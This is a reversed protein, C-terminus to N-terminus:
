RGQDDVIHALSEGTQRHLEMVDSPNANKIENKSGWKEIVWKGKVSVRQLLLKRSYKQYSAHHLTDSEDELIFLGECTM